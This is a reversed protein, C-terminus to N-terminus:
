NLFQISAAAVQLQNILNPPLLFNLRNGDTADIEVVLDRKFQDFDEVLGREEWGRFITLAFGEATKPTVVAQGAAFRTGDRALKHRPAWAQFRTRFDYRLFSLVLLTTLDRFSADTAGTTPNTQYTTVLRELRTVGLDDTIATAIGNRLLLEREELTFRDIAASGVIGPMELTKFPRAPDAQGYRAVLGGASAALEWPPSLPLKMGLVTVHKSNLGDGFTVLNAHSDAKAFIASGDLMVSPGFRDALETAVLGVNTSDNLGVAVVHFQKPGLAALAAAVTPDTAGAVGAAIAVAVGTPLTEGDQYNLRADIATGQTGANRATLTVVNTSVGATVPLEAAFESAAIAASIAAAIANQADGSLVPVTIRRGAIYLFITGAATAPGTVTLTKTAAVAGGADAIGVFWTETARNAAFYALAMGHLISGFGAALGVQDPSTALFPVDAAVTGSSLRQGIVLGRYDQIAPGQQARSPDIEVYVFPVLTSAPVENFQV